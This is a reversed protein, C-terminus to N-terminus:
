CATCILFLFFYPPIGSVASVGSVKVPASGGAPGDPYRVDAALREEKTMAKSSRVHTKERDSMVVAHAPLRGSVMQVDECDANCTMTKGACGKKGKLKSVHIEQRKSVTKSQAMILTEDHRYRECFADENTTKDIYHDKWGADRQSQYWQAM